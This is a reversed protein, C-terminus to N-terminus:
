LTYHIAETDTASDLVKLLKGKWSLSTPPKLAKGDPNDQAIACFQDGIAEKSLSSLTIGTGLSVVCQLPTDKWITRAETLAISSPNNVLVGGDQHLHNGLKVEEFYTPAAATLFCLLGFQLM